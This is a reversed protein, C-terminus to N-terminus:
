VVAVARTAPSGAWCLACPRRDGWGGPVRRPGIDGEEVGGGLAQGETSGQVSPAGPSVERESVEALSVKHAVCRLGLLWFRLVHCIGEGM